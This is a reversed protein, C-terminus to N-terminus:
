PGVKNKRSAVKNESCAAAPATVDAALGGAPMRRGACPMGTAGGSAARRIPQRGAPPGYPPMRRANQVALAATLGM